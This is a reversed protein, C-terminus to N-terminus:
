LTGGCAAAGACSGNWCTRVAQYLANTACSAAPTAASLCNTFCNTDNHCDKIPQCCSSGLCTDCAGNSTTLGSDCILGGCVSSCQTTQCSTAALYLANTSCGTTTAGTICDFCLSSAVCSDFEACCSAGLCDGCDPNTSNQLGSDCITGPTAAQCETSCFSNACDVLTQADALGSAYQTTCSQQCSQNTGCASICQLLDDCPTGSDCALLENCCIGEVCGECIADNSYLLSGCGV